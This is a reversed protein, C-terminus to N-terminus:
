WSTPLAAPSPYSTSITPNYHGCCLHSADGIVVRDESEDEVEDGVVEEVVEEQTCKM